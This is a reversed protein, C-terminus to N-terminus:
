SVLKGKEGGGIKPILFFFFPFQSDNFPTKEREKEERKWTKKIKNMNQRWNVKKWYEKPSYMDAKLCSGEFGMTAKINPNVKM